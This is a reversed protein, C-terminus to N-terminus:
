GEISLWQTGSYVEFKNITTNYRLTGSVPSSPRQATTGTPVKMAGTNNGTSVMGATTIIELNGTTDGTISLARQPITSITITSM